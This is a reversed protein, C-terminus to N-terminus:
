VTRLLRGIKRLRMDPSGTNMSFIEAELHAFEGNLYITFLNHFTLKGEGSLPFALLASQYYREQSGLTFYIQFFVGPCDFCLATFVELWNVVV